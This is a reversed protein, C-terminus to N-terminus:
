LRENTTNQITFSQNTSNFCLFYAKLAEDLSPMLSYKSSSLASFAPRKAAIDLNPYGAKVLREDLNGQRAIKKAFAYWSLCGKNVLHWLGSADDILLDLCADVLHPVYTPSVVQDCPAIFEHGNQLTTVVSHAFNYSDWPGFFAATRVVLAQPHHRLISIEAQQKSKGYTNLPNTFDTEIYPRQKEGDFVLDSSFSVLKIGHKHCVSALNEAGSFNEQYCRDKHKEAEDVQVYGAANIIAWPHYRNIVGALQEADCIDAEQRGLLFHHIGREGCIRSFARGLTGSKGIIIVPHAPLSQHRDNTKRSKAYYRSQMKWWGPNSLLHQAYNEQKILRKVYCSLATPRLYGASIDFAGTEYDCRESTLLKNWGFSGLLAWMTVARIDIGDATAKTAIKYVHDFWRLQNERTCNLHAETIALPLHYRQWAEALLQELGHPQDMEIRVAEVDAYSHLGNGGSFEPPYIGIHEDLYRESTLYHNAGIIDPCCINEQFFELEKVDIGLRLVHHWLPHGEKFRGCLIDFGLWRRHNEFRAQYSLLDTSYTKGLDETQLLKASPNIKRIRQMALVTAKLENLLIRLFSVDNKKHPYWLGYLGSFRATTLPENVPTYYDLWPFKSAVKEAYDAFLNPFDEQLLHTFAPGSGHHLLGAIPVVGHSRLKNLCNETFAWEIPCCREPEHKEWLIPFRIQKFGLGIVSDLYAPNDYFGSLEFQDMYRDQVRNITCEMGGWIKPLSSKLKNM